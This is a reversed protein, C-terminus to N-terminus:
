TEKVILTEMPLYTSLVDSVKMDNPIVKGRIIFELKKMRDVKWEYENLIYPKLEGFSIDPELMYDDLLKKLDEMNVM